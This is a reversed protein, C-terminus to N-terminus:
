GIFEEREREHRAIMPGANYDSIGRLEQYQRYLMNIEREDSDDAMWMFCAIAYGIAAAGPVILLLWLPNMSAEKFDIPAAPYSGM